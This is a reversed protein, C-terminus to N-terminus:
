AGEGGELGHVYDTDTGQVLTPSSTHLFSAPQLTRLLSPGTSLVEDKM